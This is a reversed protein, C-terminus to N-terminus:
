EQTDDCIWARRRTKKALSCIIIVWNMQPTAETRSGVHSVRSWSFEEETIWAQAQMSRNDDSHIISHVIETPSGWKVSPKDDDTRRQRRNLAPQWSRNCVAAGQQRAEPDRCRSNVIKSWFPICRCPHHNHSSISLNTCQSANARNKALGQPGAIRCHHSIISPTMAQPPGQSNKYHLATYHSWAICTDHM